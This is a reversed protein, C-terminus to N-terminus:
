RVCWRSKLRRRDVGLAGRSAGGRRRTLRVGRRAGPHGVWPYRFVARARSRGVLRWPLTLRSHGFGVDAVWKDFVLGSSKTQSGPDSCRVSRVDRKVASQESVCPRSARAGSNTAVGRSEVSSYRETVGSRASVWRPDLRCRSGRRSARFDRMGGPADQALSVWPSACGRTVSGRGQGVGNAM